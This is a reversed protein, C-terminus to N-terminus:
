RRTLARVLDAHEPFQRELAAREGFECEVEDWPPALTCSVLAWGHPQAAAPTHTGARGGEGTASAGAHWLRSGQWVGAPAVVQPHQGAALDTGLVLRKAAGTRPDLQVQEIADGAHFHWLEDTRLRHLASFGEADDTLLFYIASGAATRWTVRFFGGERPLPALGLAAVVQQAAANMRPLTQVNGGGRM